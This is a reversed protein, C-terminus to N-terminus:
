TLIWTVLLTTNKDGGQGQKSIHVLLGLLIALHLVVQRYKGVHFKESIDHSFYPM